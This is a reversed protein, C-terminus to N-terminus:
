PLDGTPEPPPLGLRRPAAPAGTAGTVIAPEARQNLWIDVRPAMHTRPTSVIDPDGDADLDAVKAQFLEIRDYCYVVVVM